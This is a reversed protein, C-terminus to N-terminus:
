DIKLDVHYYFTTASDATMLQVKNSDSSWQTVQGGKLTCCNQKTNQKIYAEAESEGGPVVGIKKCTSSPQMPEKGVITKYPSPRAAERGFINGM